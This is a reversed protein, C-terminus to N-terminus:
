HRKRYTIKQFGMCPVQSCIIGRSGPYIEQREVMSRFTERYQGGNLIQLYFFRRIGQKM